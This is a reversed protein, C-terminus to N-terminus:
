QLEITHMLDHKSLLQLANEPTDIFPNRIGMRAYVWNNYAIEWASPSDLKAWHVLTDVHQNYLEDIEYVLLMYLIARAIDGRNSSPIV